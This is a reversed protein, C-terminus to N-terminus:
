FWELRTIGACRVEIRAITGGGHVVRLSSSTMNTSKEKM